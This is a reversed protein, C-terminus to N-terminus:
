VLHPGLLTCSQGFMSFVHRFGPLSQDFDPVTTSHPGLKAWIPGLKAVMGVVIDGLIDGNKSTPASKSMTDTERDKARSVASHAVVIRM